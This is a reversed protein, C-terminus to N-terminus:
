EIEVNYWSLMDDYGKSPPIIYPVITQKGHTNTKRRSEHKSSEFMTLLRQMMEQNVGIQKQNVEVADHTRNISDQAMKAYEHSSKIAEQVSEALKANAKSIVDNQLVLRNFQHDASVKSIPSNDLPPQLNEVVVTEQIHNQMSEKGTLLWEPTINPCNELISILITEGIDAKRLMQKNLYGNSLGCKREFDSKSLGNQEIYQFIREIAKM